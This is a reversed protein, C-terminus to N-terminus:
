RYLPYAKRSTKGHFYKYRFLADQGHCDACLFQESNAVRLFSSRADGETNRGPGEMAAKASWQHPDHCTPCSIVGADDIAGGADFVPLPASAVRFRARM